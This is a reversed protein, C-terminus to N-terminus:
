EAIDKPNTITAGNKGNLDHKSLCVTKGSINRVRDWVQKIHTSTSLESVYEAWSYREKQSFLQRTHAQSRRFASLTEGRVERDQWVRKNLAHSTKLAEM